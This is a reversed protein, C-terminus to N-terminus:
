KKDRGTFDGSVKTNGSVSIKNNGIEKKIKTVSNVVFLSVILSLISCINAIVSITSEM